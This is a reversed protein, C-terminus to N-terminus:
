NGFAPNIDPSFISTVPPNIERLVKPLAINLRIWMEALDEKTEMTISITIPEFKKDKERKVRM